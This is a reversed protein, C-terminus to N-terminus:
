EALLDDIKAALIFDNESLDDVSHTWVTITVDAYDIAIDPHHNEEEALAAVDSVFDIGELFADFSFTRTLKRDSTVEWGPVEGRLRAIEEDSLPEVDDRCTKETLETM